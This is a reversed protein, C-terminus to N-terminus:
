SLWDLDLAKTGTVVVTQDTATWPERVARGRVVQDLVQRAASTM